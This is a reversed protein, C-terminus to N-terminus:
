FFFLVAFGVYQVLHTFVYPLVIHEIVTSPEHPHLVLDRLRKNILFVRLHQLPRIDQDRPLVKRHLLPGMWM